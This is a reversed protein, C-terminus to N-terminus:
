GGAQGDLNIVEDAMDRLVDDHTAALIIADPNMKKYDVILQKVRPKNEKSVAASPEDLLVFKSNTLFMLILAVFQAQGGSLAECHRWRTLNVLDTLGLSEYLGLRENKTLYKGGLTAWLNLVTEVCTRAPFIEQVRQPMYFAPKLVAELRKIDVPRTEEFSAQSVRVKGRPYPVNNLLGKLFTSKGSGNEGMLLYVKGAELTQSLHKVPTNEEQGEVGYGFELNELELKIIASAEM